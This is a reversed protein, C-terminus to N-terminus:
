CTALAGVHRLVTHLAWADPLSSTGPTCHDAAQSPPREEAWVTVSGRM